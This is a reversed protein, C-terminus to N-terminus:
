EVRSENNLWKVKQLRMELETKGNEQKLIKVPLYNLLPAHWTTYTTMDKDNKQRQLKITDLKGLKTNLIENGLKVFRHIEPEGKSIVSYTFEQQNKQADRILAYQASFSDLTGANLPLIKEDGRYDINIKGRLWDFVYHQDRNKDSGKHIYRYEKPMLKDEGDITFTSQETVNQDGAFLSVVGIAESYSSLIWLDQDKKLSLTMRIADFGNKEVKYTAEFEPIKLLDNAFLPEISILVM